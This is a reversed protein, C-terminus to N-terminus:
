EIWGLEIMQQHIANHLKVGVQNITESQWYGYHASHKINQPREEMPVLVGRENDIFYDEVVAYVENDLYFVVTLTQYDSEYKYVLALHSSDYLDLGLEKFMEAATM